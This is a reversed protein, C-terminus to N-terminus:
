EASLEEETVWKHNKVEKDDTTSMYDIMYVTTKESSDITAEAGEMGKMHDAEVTVEKGSSITEDDADKIEEQIIWKHDKVKEDGNTPTYSIVYATTDFAGVIKATAGKMGKMHDTEIKAEDGVEYTPNEADKLGEPIEGSDSHKMDMGEDSDMETDKDNQKPTVQDDDTSGCAALILGAIVLMIGIMMKRNKM